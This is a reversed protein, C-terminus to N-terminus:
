ALAQDRAAPRGALGVDLHGEIAVARNYAEEQEGMRWTKRGGWM